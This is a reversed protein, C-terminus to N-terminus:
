TSESVDIYTSNTEKKKIYAEYSKVLRTVPRYGLDFATEALGLPLYSDVHEDSFKIVSLLWEVVEYSYDQDLGFDEDPTPNFHDVSMLWKLIDLNGHLCARKFARDNDEHLDIEEGAISYLWDVVEVQDYLYASMFADCYDINSKHDVLYQHMWKALDIWGNECMKVFTELGTDCDVGYYWYSVEVEPLTILWEVVHQQRDRCVQGLIMIGLYDQSFDVLETAYLWKAVDLHGYKCSMKFADNYYDVTNEGDLALWTVVDMHGGCCSVVFADGIGGAGKKVMQKAIDIQGCYCALKLTESFYDTISRDSEYVLSEYETLKEQSCFDMKSTKM